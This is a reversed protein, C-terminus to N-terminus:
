TLVLEPQSPTASLDVVQQLPLLRELDRQSAIWASYDAESVHRVATSQAGTRILKEDGTKNNKVVYVRTTEGSKAPRSM